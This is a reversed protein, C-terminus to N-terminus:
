GDNQGMRTDDLRISVAGLRELVLRQHPSSGEGEGPGDWPLEELRLLRGLNSKLRM